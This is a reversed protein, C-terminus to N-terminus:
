PVYYTVVKRQGAREITVNVANSNRFQSYLNLAQEFSHIPQDNVAVIRDGSALGYRAAYSGGPVTNIQVGQMQGKRMLPEFLVGEALAAPDQRALEVIERDVAVSADSNRAAEPPPVARAVSSKVAYNLGVNRNRNRGNASESQAPGSMGERAGRLVGAQAVAVPEKFAPRELSLGTTVGDRVFEASELGISAVTWGDAVRDGVRYLGVKGALEVFVVSGGAGTAGRAAANYIVGRIKFPVVPASAQLLPLLPLPDPSEAVPEPAKPAPKRVHDAAVPRSPVPARAPSFALYGGACLGAALLGFLGTTLRDLKKRRIAEM